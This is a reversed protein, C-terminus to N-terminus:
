LVLLMLITCLLRNLNTCSTNLVDMHIYMYLMSIVDCWSVQFKVGDPIPNGDIDEEVSESSKPNGDAYMVMISPLVPNGISALYNTSPNVVYGVQVGYMEKATLAMNRYSTPITGDESEFLAVITM